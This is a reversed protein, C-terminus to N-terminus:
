LRSTNGENDFYKVGSSGQDYFLWVLGLAICGLIIYRRNSAVRRRGGLKISGNNSAATMGCLRGLLSM